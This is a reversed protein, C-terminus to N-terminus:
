SGDPQTEVIELIRAADSMQRPSVHITGTEKNKEYLSALSKALNDDDLGTADFEQKLGFDENSGRIEQGELDTGVLKANEYGASTVEKVFERSAENDLGEKGGTLQYKATAPNMPESAKALSAFIKGGAMDQNREVVTITMTRIRKMKSFFEDIESSSTLPVLSITPPVHERFAKERTYTADRQKNRRYIGDIYDRFEKKIFSAITAEFNALNPALKKEPLLSIRHDFPYFVFFSSPSSELRQMDEVLMQDKLIQERELVLNRVLRGYIVYSLPDDSHLRRGQVNLFHYSTRGYKRVNTDNFFARWCIQPYDLLEKDGYRVSLNGYSIKKPM